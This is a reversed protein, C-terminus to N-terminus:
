ITCSTFQLWRCYLATCAAAMKQAPLEAPQRDAAQVRWIVHNSCGQHSARAATSCMKVAASPLARCCADSIRVCMPRSHDHKSGCMSCLMACDQLASTANGQCGTCITMLLPAHLTTDICLQQGTHLPIDLHQRRGGHHLSQLVVAICSCRAQSQGYMAALSRQLALQRHLVACCM